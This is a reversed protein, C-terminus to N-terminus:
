SKWLVRLIGIFSASKLNNEVLFARHIHSIDLIHFLKLSLSQARIELAINLVLTSLQSSLLVRQRHTESDVCPSTTKM